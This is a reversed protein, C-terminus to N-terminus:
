AELSHLQYYYIYSEHHLIEVHINPDSRKLWKSNDGAVTEKMIRRCRNMERMKIVGM